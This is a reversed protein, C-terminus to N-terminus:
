NKKVSNENNEKDVILNYALKYEDYLEKLSPYKNRMEEEFNLQNQIERLKASPSTFTTFQNLFSDKEIDFDSWNNNEIDM